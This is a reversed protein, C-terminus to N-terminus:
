FSKTKKSQNISENMRFPTNRELVTHVSEHASCARSIEDRKLQDNWVFSCAINNYIVHFLVM